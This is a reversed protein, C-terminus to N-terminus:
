IISRTCIASSRLRTLVRNEILAAAAANAFVNYLDTFRNDDTARRLLGWSSRELHFIDDRFCYTRTVLVFKVPLIIVVCVATSDRSSDFDFSNRFSKSDLQISLINNRFVDLNARVKLSRTRRSIAVGIHVFITSLRVTIKNIIPFITNTRDITEVFLKRSHIIRTCCAIRIGNYSLKNLSEYRHRDRARRLWREGTCDDSGARIRINLKTDCWIIIIITLSSRVGLNIVVTEKSSECTM